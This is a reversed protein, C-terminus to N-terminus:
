YFAILFYERQLVSNWLPFMKSQRCYKSHTLRWKLSFLSVPFFVRVQRLRAAFRLHFEDMSNSFNFRLLPTKCSMRPNPIRLFQVLIGHSEYGAPVRRRTSGPPTKEECGFWARDDSHLSCSKRSREWVCHRDGPERVTPLWSRCTASGKCGM